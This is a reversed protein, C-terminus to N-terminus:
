RFQPLAELAKLDEPSITAQAYNALRLPASNRSIRVRELWKRDLPRDLMELSNSAITTEAKEHISCGIGVHFGALLLTVRVMTSRTYNTLLCPSEERLCRYLFSFHELSWM